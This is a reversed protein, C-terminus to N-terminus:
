SIVRGVERPNNKEGVVSGAAVIALCGGPAFWAEVMVAGKGGEFWRRTGDVVLTM